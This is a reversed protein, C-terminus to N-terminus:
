AIRQKKIIPEINSGPWLKLNYSDQGELGNESLSNLDAYCVRVQYIGPAIDIRMAEPFYDTCGAIVLRPGKIKISCEVVHDWKSFDLLPECSLIELSVSVEMNRVTGVGVIGPAVALLRTVAEETWADSLDGRALEDQIYFQFYDAFINLKYM